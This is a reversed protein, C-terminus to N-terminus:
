SVPFPSVTSFVAVAPAVEKLACPRAKILRCILMAPFISASLRRTTAWLPWAIQSVVLVISAMSAMAVLAVPAKVSAAGEHAISEDANPPIYALVMRRIAVSAPAPTLVTPLIAAKPSAMVMLALPSKTTPEALAPLEVVNSALRTEKSDVELNVKDLAVKVPAAVLALGETPPVTETVAPPASTSSLAVTLVADPVPVALPFTVKVAAANVSMPVAPPALTTLAPPRSLTSVVPSVM